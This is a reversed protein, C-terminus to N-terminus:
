AVGAGLAAAAPEIGALTAVPVTGMLETLERHLGLGYEVAIMGVSFATLGVVLGVRSAWSATPRGLGVWSRFSEGSRKRIAAVARHGGYVLGALLLAVLLQLVAGVLETLLEEM